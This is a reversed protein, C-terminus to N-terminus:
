DRAESLPDFVQRQRAHNVSKAQIGLQQPQSTPQCSCSQNSGWVPFKWICCTHGQFFFFCFISIELQLSNLAKRQILLHLLRPESFDIRQYAGTSPLTSDKRDFSIKTVGNQEPKLQFVKRRGGEEKGRRGTVIQKLNALQSSHTGQGSWHSPSLQMVQTLSVYPLTRQEACRSKPTGKQLLFSGQRLRM